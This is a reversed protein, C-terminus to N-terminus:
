AAWRLLAAVALACLLLIFLAALRSMVTDRSGPAKFSLDKDGSLMPTVLNEGQKFRYWLIAAIHLMVLAILILKTVETHLFTAVSVWAAPVKSVLPGATAIEDDSMLGACIQALTVFLLALVSLAGLPNHGVSDQPLRKGQVYRVIRAPTVVFTSFRSWHGGVLGWVLRFIVLTLAAYGLRFHWVMADGSVESSVVLGLVCIVLSWHFVRTPLDWVRVKGM